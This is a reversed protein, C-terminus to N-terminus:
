KLSKRKKVETHMRGNATKVSFDDFYTVADAKTWLGIKGKGKISEDKVKFLKKGNLYVTFLNGNVTLKLENWGEGLAPVSVGYTRGKGLLPLDTRKGDVVKYLVVNDELPNARVVYYNNKDKFRWVFGGGRDMRGKVGKLKVTLEVNETELGNYVVVNFHYNPNKQSLQAMAKNGDDNVIKWETGSGRGTFYQSWDDPLKGAEYNEFDFFLAAGDNHATLKDRTKVDATKADQAAVSITFIIFGFLIASLTKM